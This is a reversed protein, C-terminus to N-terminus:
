ADIEELSEVEGFSRDAALLTHTLWSDFEPPFPPVDPLRTKPEPEGQLYQKVFQPAVNDLLWQRMEEPMDLKALLHHAAEGGPWTDGHQWAWEWEMMTVLLEQLTRAGAPTAIRVQEDDDPTVHEFYLMYGWPLAQFVIDVFKITAMTTVHHGTEFSPPDDSGCNCRGEDENWRHFGAPGWRATDCREGEIKRAGSMLFVGSMDGDEWSGAWRGIGGLHNPQDALRLQPPPPTEPTSIPIFGDPVADHTEDPEMLLDEPNTV